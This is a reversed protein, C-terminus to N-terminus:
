CPLPTASSSGGRRRRCPPQLSLALDDRGLGQITAAPSLRQEPLPGGEKGPPGWPCSPIRPASPGRPVHWSCPVGWVLVIKMLPPVSSPVSVAWSWSTGQLRFPAGLARPGEHASEGGVSPTVYTGERCTPCRWVNEWSVPFLDVTTDASSCGPPGEDLVSHRCWRSRQRGTDLAQTRGKQPKEEENQPHFSNEPNTSWPVRNGFLAGGPTSEANVYRQQLSLKRVALSTAGVPTGGSDTGDVSAVTVATVSPIFGGPRPAAPSHLPGLLDGATRILGQRRQRELSVGGFKPDSGAERGWLSPLNQSPREGGLSFVM